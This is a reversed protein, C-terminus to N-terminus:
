ASATKMEELLASADIQYRDKEYAEKNLWAGEFKVEESKYMRAKEKLFTDKIKRVDSVYRSYAYDQLFPDIKARIVDDYYAPELITDAPTLDKIKNFAREDPGIADIKAIDSRPITREDKITPSVNIEMVVEQDTTMTIRGQIKEGSKLQVM